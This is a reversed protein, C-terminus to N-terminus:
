LIKSNRKKHLELIGRDLPQILSTTNSPLFKTTNGESQLIEVSPHAPANDTLLIVKNEIRNNQLFLKLM